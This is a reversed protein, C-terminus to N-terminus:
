IYIRLKNPHPINGVPPKNKDGQTGPVALQQMTVVGPGLVLTLFKEAYTRFMCQVSSYDLEM